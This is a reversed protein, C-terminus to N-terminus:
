TRDRTAEATAPSRDGVLLYTNGGVIRQGVRQIVDFQVADRSAQAPLEVHLAIARWSGAPLVVGSAIVHTGPDMRRLLYVRGRDLQRRAGCGADVSAPFAGTASEAARGRAPRIADGVDGEDLVAWVRASSPLSGTQILVDAIVDEPQPNYLRAILPLALGAAGGIVQLNKLAVQKRGPVLQGVDFIGAGNLPDENCTTVVLICTHRAASSPVYWDWEVVGPKAPELAAITLIPGIPSWVAGSPTGVFPKGSCWFDAPLAPLGASAPAFFARVQVNTARDSGRNHVQVYVRNLTGALATRHVLAAEFSVYDDIRSSTQFTPQPADVKVDPSDWWNTLAGAADLPDPVGSPTPQVRGSDVADDRVYLDVLPCTALDIPREWVSRGHTAARLLRRPGHLVLDFVPVNPLGDDWPSWSIGANDTRFVGVDCGCFLRDPKTPDIVISNVPNGHALGSSRSVWSAAAPGRRFMHDSSFEGFAETYYVSSVSVWLVGAPDVALDSLSVAPLGASIDTRTVDALAWTAGTRQVRFVRGSDTAVYVKTPDSPDVAVATSTGVLGSTVATWKSNTVTYDRRWLESGGFYCVDHNSPDITFPAYFGAGGTIGDNTGSWSTGANDSRYFETYTYEHYMRTPVVPDIAAFGGDGGDVRRWAPSGNYRHTGNDQTGGLLVTEWQPNQALGIYELTALDRNRHFWTTGDDVSCFVGGDGCVWCAGPVPVPLGNRIVVRPPEFAFAHQDTHPVVFNGLPDFQGGGTTSRWLRVEGLYVTDAQTPHVGVCTNYSLQRTLLVDFTHNHGTADPKTTVTVSGGGAVTAIQAANLDIKHTHAPTGDTTTTYTHLSPTATLDAALVNVFHPHDTTPSASSGLFANSNLRIDVKTWNTGDLTRAMGAIHWGTGFLAYIVTPSGAQQAMSIRDFSSPFPGTLQTWAGWTGAHRLATWLGSSEFAAIVRLDDQPGGPPNFLVMDSASGARLVTWNTGGDTSAYVGISSSLYVHQGTADTPDFVIRSIEARSFTASGTSTWTEGYDNSRLVGNGYYTGIYFNDYEGTGALVHSPDNPNVAIAGIALSAQYDTKPFWTKGGDISKWVGGGATGVYVGTPLGPARPEFAISLARGSYVTTPDVILGSPGLPTWNCSLPRPPGPDPGLPGNEVRDRLARVQAVQFDRLGAPVAGLVNFRRRFFERAREFPRDVAVLASEGDEGTDGIPTVITFVARATPRSAHESIAVVTHRGPRLGLTVLSCEFVGEASPVLQDGAQVGEAVRAPVVPKGGLELQTPCIPWGEGRVMIPNGAEPRGPFVTLAPAGPREANSKRVTM